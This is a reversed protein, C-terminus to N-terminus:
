LATTRINSDSSNGLAIVATSKGPMLWVAERMDSGPEELINFTEDVSGGGVGHFTIQAWVELVNGTYSLALGGGRHRGRLSQPMLEEVPIFRIEAPQLQVPNGVIANGSITYFIPTVDVPNASRSNLVIECRAAESLEIAPAYIRRLSPPPCSSCGRSSPLRSGNQARASQEPSSPGTNLLSVWIGILLLALLVLQSTRSSEHSELRRPIRAM